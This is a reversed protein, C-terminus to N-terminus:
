NRPTGDSQPRIRQRVSAAGNIVAIILLTITVQPDIVLGPVVIARRATVRGM